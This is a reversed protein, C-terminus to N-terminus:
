ESYFLMQFITDTAQSVDMNSTNIEVKPSLPIEYPSDLGTFNTIKGERAEKYLGKCDRKECIELPTSLYIEYFHDAGIIEKAVERDVQLPSILAAAANM